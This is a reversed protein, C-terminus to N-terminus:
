QAGQVRPEKRTSLRCTYAVGEIRFKGLKQCDDRVTERGYEMAYVLLGAFVILGVVMLALDRAM